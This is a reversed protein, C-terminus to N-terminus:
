GTHKGEIELFAQWEAEDQTLRKPSPKRSPSTPGDSSRRSPANKSPKAEGLEARAAYELVAKVREGDDVIHAFKPEVLVAAEFVQNWAKDDLLQPFREGLSQRTAQVTAQVQKQMQAAQSAKAEQLETQLPEILKQALKVVAGAADEGFEEVLPAMLEDLNAHTPQAPQAAEKESGTATVQKKLEAREQFAQNVERQTGVRGLAYKVAGDRDAKVMLDILDDSLGDLKLAAKLPADLEAQVAEADPEGQEESSAEDAQEEPAEDEDDGTEPELSALLPDKPAAADAKELLDQLIADEASVEPASVEAGDDALQNDVEM